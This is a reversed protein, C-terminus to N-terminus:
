ELIKSRKWSFLLKVDSLYNEDVFELQIQKMNRLKELWRITYLSPLKQIKASMTSWMCYNNWSFSSYPLCTRNLHSNSVTTHAWWTYMFLYCPISLGAYSASGSVLGRRTESSAFLPSAANRKSLAVSSKSFALRPSGFWFFRTDSVGEINL